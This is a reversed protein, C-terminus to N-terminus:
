KNILSNDKVSLSNFSSIKTLLSRLENDLSKEIFSKKIIIVFGDPTTNLEWYHVQEKRILYIVPPKIEFRRSDINHHGSGKSLYIIEFYNNHKHPETKRIEKKFPTIKILEGTESKDKILLRKKLISKITRVLLFKRRGM